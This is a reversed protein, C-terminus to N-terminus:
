CSTLGCSSACRCRWARCYLYETPNSDCASHFRCCPNRRSCRDGPQGADGGCDQYTQLRREDDTM